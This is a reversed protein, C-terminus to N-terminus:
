LIIFLYANTQINNHSAIDTNNYSLIDKIM